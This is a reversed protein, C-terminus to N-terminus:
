RSRSRSCHSPRGCGPETRRPYPLRQAALSGTMAYRMIRSRAIRDTLATLGRPELYGAVANSKQLGYDQSWRQIVRRWDVTTIPGRPERAMLAERELFDAVRYAAGTSAGSRAILEPITLPPAYDVLARVVRAAPPGLLTGTPRGPGRWPDRDAGRDHLFIAPHAISLRVNGTADAYSVENRELWSRADPSLYRAVVVPVVPQGTVSTSLRRLQDLAAPLTSTVLSRKAEFVLTAATRGPGALTAIGDLQHGGVKVEERLDISWSEPLRREIFGVARRLIDVPREPPM